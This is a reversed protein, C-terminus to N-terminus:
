DARSCQGVASEREHELTKLPECCYPCLDYQPQQDTFGAQVEAIKRWGNRFGDQETDAGWLLLYADPGPATLLYSNGRDDLELKPGYYTNTRKTVTLSEPVTSTPDIQAIIEQIEVDDYREARLMVTKSEYDTVPEEEPDGRGHVSPDYATQHAM